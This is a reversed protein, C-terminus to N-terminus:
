RFVQFELRLAPNTWVERIIDFVLQRSQEFLKYGLM